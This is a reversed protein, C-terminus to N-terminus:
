IQQQVEVMLQDGVEESPEEGVVVLVQGYEM